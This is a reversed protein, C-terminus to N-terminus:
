DADADRVDGLRGGVVFLEPQGAELVISEGGDVAAFLEANDGRRPPPEDLEADTDRIGVVEARDGRAEGREVDRDRV